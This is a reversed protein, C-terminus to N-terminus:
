APPRSAPGPGEYPAMARCPGLVAMFVIAQQLGQRSGLLAAARRGTPVPVGAPAATRTHRVAHRSPETRLPAMQARPPQVRQPQRGWFEEEAIPQPPVEPPPLEEPQPDRRRRSMLQGFLNFLIVGGILLLYLLLESAPV